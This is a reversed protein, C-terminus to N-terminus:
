RRCPPSMTRNDITSPCLHMVHGNVHKRFSAVQAIVNHPIKAAVRVQWSADFVVAILFDFDNGQLNRIVGLQTSRNDPTVRRGKIQYRVGKSDTADYGRASNTELQLGLKQSVLWETYDGTPNNKSRVVARKRLEDLIQSHTALLAPISLLSWDPATPM